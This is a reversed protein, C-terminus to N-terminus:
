LTGMARQYDVRAVLADYLASFYNNQASLLDTEANIVETSSGVGEKYKIQAKDIVKKALEMNKSQSELTTISNNLNILANKREYDITKKLQAISLETKQLRLQAQQLQYKKRMGDFIPVNLTLGITGNPFWNNDNFKFLDSNQQAGGNYGYTAFLNVTPYYGLRYRREDMMDLEKQIQYVGFEPRLSYDVTEEALTKADLQIQAMTTTIDLEDGVPMGMQFKLLNMNSEVFRDLRIKENNLNNYNVELRDVDLEEVFGNEYLVKTEKLLSSIRELNQQIIKQREKAVLVGYYIKTVGAKIEMETVKVAEKALSTYTEAAKLGLFYTGDFLLQNLTVGATGNYPLGFQFSVVEDAPAMPDFNTAPFLQTQIKYNYTYQFQGNIQPLGASKVEGVTAESTAIDIQANKMNNNHQLAYEICQELTMSADKEAEQAKLESVQWLLMFAMGLFVKLCYDGLRTSHKIKQNTKM